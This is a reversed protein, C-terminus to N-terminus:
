VTDTDEECNDIRAKMNAGCNPCYDSRGYTNWKHCLSCYFKRRFHPDEDVDYAETWEGHKEQPQLSPLKRIMRVIYDNGIRDGAIEIAAKRSILDDSM